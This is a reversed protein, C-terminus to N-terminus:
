SRNGGHLVLSPFVFAGKPVCAREVFASRGGALTPASRNGDDTLRTKNWGQTVGQAAIIMGRPGENGLAELLWGASVPRTM